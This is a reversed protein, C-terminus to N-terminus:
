ELSDLAELGSGWIATGDQSLVTFGMVYKKGFEDYQKLVAGQYTIGDITLEMTHDGTLKWQGEYAGEIRGDRYLTINVSEKMQTTIKRGHKILKYRGAVQKKDYTGATEGVYRWPAIVPWGEQNFFMQHVRVEHSEGMGEFRTHFLIFYKGTEEEYITSNHGPSVLGKRKEGAEGEEWKWKYNGMLKVGYQEAARDDFFSGPSGKCDIMNNGASDYYPGDPAEARCVRINYGGDATLGGYSLFMYYYGTDPNYQVYAGEIRLHNEGLLKKGYGEELPLGTETNLELIYIGGSYSGYMMFLRGEADYFVCPDVVNPHVTADYPDGNESAEETMGSKLFIGLDRYPGEIQDSVALGLCSLPSSGECNCYYMYFRGDALQIVDPAWFTGTKAWQFAEPMENMADPIIPNNKKVGSGILKWNILDESKAGALHSGFIYYTGNYCVVSPDHVSVNEFSIEPEKKSQLAISDYTEKGCGTFLGIATVMTCFIVIQKRM